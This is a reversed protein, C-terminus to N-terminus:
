ITPPTMAVTAYRKPGLAKYINDTVRLFQVRIEAGAIQYAVVNAGHASAIARLKHGVERWDVTGNIHGFGKGMDWVTSQHPRDSRHLVDPRVFVINEPAVKNYSYGYFNLKRLIELNSQFTCDIAIPSTKDQAFSITALVLSFLCSLTLVRLM